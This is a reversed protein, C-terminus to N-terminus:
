LILERLYPHKAKVSNTFRKLHSSVCQKSVGLQRALEASSKSAPEGLLGFKGCIVRAKKSDLSGCEELIIQRISPAAPERNYDFVELPNESCATSGLDGDSTRLNWALNGGTEKQVLRVNSDPDSIKHVPCQKNRKDKRAASQVGDRVKWFLWTMWSELTVERPPNFSKLALIISIFGEQALDEYSHADSMFGYKHVMKYVLPTYQTIVREIAKQDGNIARKLDEVSFTM